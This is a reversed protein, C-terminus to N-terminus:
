PQWIVCLIRSATADPSLVTTKLYPKSQTFLFLFLATMFEGKKKEVSVQINPKLQQPPVPKHSPSLLAFIWSFVLATVM